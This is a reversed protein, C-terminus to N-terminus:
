SVSHCGSSNPGVDASLVVFQLKEFSSLASCLHHMLLDFHPSGHVELFKASCSMGITVLLFHYLHLLIPHM